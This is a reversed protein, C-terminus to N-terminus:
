SVRAALYDAASEPTALAGYDSEPIEAGLRRHLAAVLAVVDMSDLDLDDQLHADPPITEGKLDPAVAVLEELFIARLEDATM